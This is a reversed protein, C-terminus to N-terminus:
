IANQLEKMVEVFHIEAVENSVEPRDGIAPITIKNGIVVVPLTYRGGNYEVETWYAGNKIPAFKYMYGVLTLMQTEIFRTRVAYSRGMLSPIEEVNGAKLAERIRSSSVRDGGQMYQSVATVEFGFGKGLEAMMEPSGSRGKGFSFDDGVFVHKARLTNALTKEVFQEPTTSAYNKSFTIVYIGDMGMTAMERAKAAFPTIRVPAIDPRLAKIPHPEFTIVIVPVGLEEARKKAANLVKKHGLHIGDFNGIAVVAGDDALPVNETHRYIVINM